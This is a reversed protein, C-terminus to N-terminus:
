RKERRSAPSAARSGAKRHFFGAVRWDVLSLLAYNEATAAGLSM